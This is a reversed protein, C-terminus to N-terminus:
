CGAYAAADDGRCFPDRRADGSDQFVVCTHLRVFVKEFQAAGEDVSAGPELFNRGRLTDHRATQRPASRAAEDIEIQLSRSRTGVRQAVEEIVARM